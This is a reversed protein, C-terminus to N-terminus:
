KGAKIIRLAIDLTKISEEGSTLPERNNKICNLFHILELKLPEDKEVRIERKGPKGFKIVFDGFEDYTKEYNSEFILLEQTIYNLEAYGKTGTVNLIRIKVPTIWNVQILGNIGGNYKLFIDAYDHRNGLAKGSNSFMETPQKELLHSIVDIDHVALDIIVDMDKIQPPFLGVRRALISTIEGLEGSKVIEKLKRVAPNYREVHGVMLKVNHKKALSVLENGEELTSTIPKEILINVGSKILQSSIKHHISTPVCVSVADPKIKKLLDEISKFFQCGYKSAVEKGVSENADVIGVFQCDKIESYVRAHHKGMNGAGIVAVKM